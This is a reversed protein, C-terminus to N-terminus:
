DGGAQSDETGADPHPAVSTEAPTEAPTEAAATRRLLVLNRVYVTWGISQGMLGIPEGRMAYYVALLTAGSLSCWWFAVPVHSTGRRESAAIQILWRAMFLAQAAFGFGLLARELTTTAGTWEWFGDLLAAAALTM